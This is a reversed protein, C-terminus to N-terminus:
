VQLSATRSTEVDEKRSHQYHQFPSEEEQLYHQEEVCHDGPFAGQVQMLQIDMQLEVELYTTIFFLMKTTLLQQFHSMIQVRYSVMKAASVQQPFREKLCAIVIKNSLMYQQYM